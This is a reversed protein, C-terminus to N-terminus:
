AEGRVGGFVRALVLPWLAVLGPLVLVRFWISGGAANRDIRNVGVFALYGGAFVGLLLYVGVLWVVLTM